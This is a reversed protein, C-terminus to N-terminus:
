KSVFTNKMLKVLELKELVKGTRCETFQIINLCLSVIATLTKLRVSLDEIKESRIHEGVSFVV